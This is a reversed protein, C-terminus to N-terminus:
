AGLDSLIWDIQNKMIGAAVATCKVQGYRVESWLYEDAIGSDLHRAWVAASLLRAPDFSDRRQV